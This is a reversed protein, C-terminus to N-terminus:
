MYFIGTGSEYDQIRSHSGINLYKKVIINDTGVITQGEYDAYDTNNNDVYGAFLLSNNNSDKVDIGVENITSKTKAGDREYTMGNEDFTASNTQVSTVKVGDVGIGNVIRQIEQKSYTDTVTERFTTELSSLGDETAQIRSNLTVIEGTERNIIISMQRLTEYLSKDYQLRVEAETMNEATVTTKIHGTYHIALSFPYSYKYNNEMDKIKIPDKAKLWPHGLTEMKFPIYNLGLLRNAGVIATQRHALDFTIPNDLIDLEKIGNEAIDTDDSVSADQGQVSSMGIVIRNIDGYKEKETTLSYYHNNTIVNYEDINEFDLSIEDIYLKDDWGIRCWGFALKAIAKMVDRCSDGSTFQNSDIVYDNHTFTTTALTIGVQECVYAALEGATFYDGSTFSDEFSTEFTESTYTADFKANFQLTLDMAEFKTNDAVEDDEPELVNFTGLSYWHVDINAYNKIKIDDLDRLLSDNTQETVLVDENEDTEILYENHGFAMVGMQLEIQKNEINFDDSINQLEGSLERAIFEGIFTHTDPIYREDTYDWTKVCDRETLVIENETGPSVIIKTLIVANGNQFSEKDSDLIETYVM